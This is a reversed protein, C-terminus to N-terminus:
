CPCERPGKVFAVVTDWTLLAIGGVGGLLSLLQRGVGGVSASVLGRSASV